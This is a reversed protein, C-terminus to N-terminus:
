ILKAPELKQIMPITEAQPYQKKVQIIQIMNTIGILITITLIIIGVVVLTIDIMQISLSSKFEQIYNKM